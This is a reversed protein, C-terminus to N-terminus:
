GLTSPVPCCGKSRVMSGPWRAAELDQAQFGGPFPIVRSGKGGKSEPNESEEKETKFYRDKPERRRNAADHHTKVARVHDSEAM